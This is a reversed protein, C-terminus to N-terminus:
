SIKAQSRADKPSMGYIKKFVRRFSHSNNYGVELCVNSINMDTHALLDMAQEMRRLELYSSFNEGIEEKFLYSFYSESISFEDSIKSLCLSPDQYNGDIYDKITAILKNGSSKNDFLKCLNVALDECLKLSMHQDFLVDISNLDKENEESVKLTFRIKYLTNRIDSLLYKVMNIPLSRVEMNEHRLIEFIELVQSKNGNTIFNTLQTTLEIPYYFGTTEKEINAYYRFTTRKTAYSVSQNAQQFSKWTIMLGKNWDGLGAFTWISFEDLLHQHLASFVKEINATTIDSNEEEPSSLLIAFEKENTSIVGASEKFFESIANQIIEKYDLNDPGTVASNDVHLEYQNVYAVMYLVSFKRNDTTINVYQQAYDLEEQNSISGNMIKTLYTDMIIPKQVEVLKQLTKQRTQTDTLENGLQTFKKINSKSLFFIVLLELLVGFVIIAIFINRYQKLSYLSADEPQVLYYNWDNYESSSGTVIFNEGLNSYNAFGNTFTINALFDANIEGAQSGEVTFVINGADDTVCLYGSEYYNLENFIGKLRDYDIEYCIVSPVDKLTYETLPLMYLYTSDSYTKFPDISIFHRYLNSNNMLSLWDEYKDSYYSKIGKYYLQTDSFQSFSLIYGSQKLYIYYNKIPLISETFVYVSLEEKAHYALLYFSNDENNEKNALQTINSNSAVQSALVDMTRFSTDLDNVTKDLMIKNQHRIENGVNQISISYLYVGMILVVILLVSYSIILRRVFSSDKTNM